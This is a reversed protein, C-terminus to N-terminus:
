AFSCPVDPRRTVFRSHLNILRYLMAHDPFFLVVATCAQMQYQRSQFPCCVSRLRRGLGTRSIGSRM